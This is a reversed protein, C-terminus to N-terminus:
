GDSAANGVAKRPRGPRRKIAVGVMRNHEAELPAPPPEHGEAPAWDGCFTRLLYQAMPESVEVTDGDNAMVPEGTQLDIGRYLEGSVRRLKM